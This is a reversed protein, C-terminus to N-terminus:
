QKRPNAIMALVDPMARAINAAVSPPLSLTMHSGSPGEFNLLINAGIADPWLGATAVPHVVIPRVEGGGAVRYGSLRRDSWLDITAKLGDLEEPTIRIEIVKGAANHRLIYGADSEEFSFGLPVDTM